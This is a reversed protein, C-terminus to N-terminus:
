ASSSRPEFRVGKLDGHCIKRKHLYALGEATDLSQYQILSQRECVANLRVLQLRMPMDANNVKLYTTVNGQTAFPSIFWMSGEEVDMYFAVLDLVNPHVLDAWVTLERAFAKALRPFM